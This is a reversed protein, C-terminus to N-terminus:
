AQSWRARHADDPPSGDLKLLLAVGRYYYIHAPNGVLMIHVDIIINMIINRNMHANVNKYLHMKIILILLQLQLLILMCLLMLRFMFIFLILTNINIHTKVPTSAKSAYNM